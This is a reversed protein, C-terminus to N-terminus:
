DGSGLAVGEERLGSRDPSHPNSSANSLGIAPLLSQPLSPPWPGRSPRPLYPVHAALPRKLLQTVIQPDSRDPTTHNLVVAFRAPDITLDHELLALYRAVHWAALEDPTVPIVLTDAADIAALTAVYALTRSTDCILVDYRAAIAALLATLVDRSLLESRLPQTAGALLYVGAPGVRPLASAVRHPDFAGSLVDTAVDDLSYTSRPLSPTAMDLDVLAVQYGASALGLATAAALYTKGSSVPAWFTITRHAPVTLHNSRRRLRSLWTM